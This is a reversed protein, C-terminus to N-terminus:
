ITLIKRWLGTLTRIRPLCSIIHQISIILSFQKRGLVQNQTSQLLLIDILMNTSSWSWLSLKWTSCGWKFSRYHWDVRSVIILVANSGNVYQHCLWRTNWLRWRMGSRWVEMYHQKLIIRAGCWECCNQWNYKLHQTDFQLRETIVVNKVGSYKGTVPASPRYWHKATFNSYFWLEPWWLCVCCNSIPGRGGHIQWCTYYRHVRTQNCLLNVM